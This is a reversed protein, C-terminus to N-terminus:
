LANCPVNNKPNINKTSVTNSIIYVNNGRIKKVEVPLSSLLMNSVLRNTKTQKKNQKQGHIKENTAKQLKETETIKCIFKQQLM